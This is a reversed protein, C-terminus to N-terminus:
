RAFKGKSIAAAASVILRPGLKATDKALNSSSNLQSNELPVVTRVSIGQGRKNYNMFYSEPKETFFDGAVLKTRPSSIQIFVRDFEQLQQTTGDAQIPLNDDTAVMLLDVNDTLRGSIQLNLNSNVAVDRNNGFSIGRSLSGSKNLGGMAFPDESQQKGPTYTFPNYRNEPTATMKGQNKHSNEATFLFPFVAYTVEISESTHPMLLILLPSGYDLKYDVSDLLARTATKADFSGPVISLTDLQITDQATAISRSRQPFFGQAHVLTAIALFLLLLIGRFNM